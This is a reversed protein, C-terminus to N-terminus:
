TKYISGFPEGFYSYLNINGRHPMFTRTDKGVNPIAETTTKLKLQRQLTFHNITKLLARFMSYNSKCTLQLSPM